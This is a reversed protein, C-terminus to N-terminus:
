GGRAGGRRSALLLYFCVLPTSVDQQLVHSLQGGDKTVRWYHTANERRGLMTAFNEDHTIVVLQFNEQGQRKRMLRVLCEALSAANPGDLNTTPEDLALIGCDICFVEALALRVVLCALVKQGASCRGRMDLETDGCKMVVRYNYSRHAKGGPNDEDADSRIAITEIDAGRYTSKWLEDIIANIQGMKTTHFVM